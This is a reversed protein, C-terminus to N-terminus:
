GEQARWDFESFRSEQPLVDSLISFEEVGRLGQVFNMRAQSPFYSFRGDFIEISQSHDQKVLTESFWALIIYFVMKPVGYVYSMIKLQKM